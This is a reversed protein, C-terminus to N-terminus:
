LKTTNTYTPKISLWGEKLILNPIQANSINFDSIIMKNRNVLDIIALEDTNPQEKNILKQWGDEEIFYIGGASYAKSANIAKHNILFDKETDTLNRIIFEQSPLIKNLDSLNLSACNKEWEELNIICLNNKSHSNEPQRIKENFIELTFLNSNQLLKLDSDSINELAIKSEIINKVSNFLDCEENTINKVLDDWKNIDVLYVEEEFYFDSNDILKAGSLKKLDEGMLGKLAMDQTIRNKTPRNEVSLAKGKNKKELSVWSWRYRKDRLLSIQLDNKPTLVPATLLTLEIKRLANKIANYPIQINQEPLIGTKVFLKAKPHMFAIISRTEGNICSHLHKDKTKPLLAKNLDEIRVINLEKLLDWIMSGKEIFHKMIISKSIFGKNELIDDFIAKIKTLDVDGNQHIRLEKFRDILFKVEPKFIKETKILELVKSLKLDKLASLIELTFVTNSISKIIDLIKSVNKLFYSSQERSSLNNIEQIFKILKVSNTFETSIQQVTESNIYLHGLNQAEHKNEINWYGILGDNYQNIDGFRVPFNIKSLGNDNTSESFANNVDHIVNGKTLLQYDIKTIAIPVSSITEMLSPNQYDEPTIHELNNQIEHVVQSLFKDKDNEARVLFWDIIAVLNENGIDKYAKGNKSALVADFPSPEWIGDSTIAGLHNGNTSYFELRQNLYSVLIWGIVPSDGKDSVKYDFNLKLTSEQLIRPPLIVWNDKDAFTQNKTSIIKKPQILKERGYSDVIRLRNITFAGNRLPNFTALKNTTLLNINGKNRSLLDHLDKAIAQHNEFGNPILPMISLEASRQIMLHNFDSLTFSFLNTQNLKTEYDTLLKDLEPNQTKLNFSNENFLHIKNIIYQKIKGDIFSHGFYNDSSPNYTIGDLNYDKILDANQEDLIYTDEIFNEKFQKSSQNLYYGNKKPLFNAHWEVKYSNWSSANIISCYNINKIISQISLDIDSINLDFEDENFKLIDSKSDFLTNMFISAKDDKPASIIVSPALPEYFDLTSKKAISIKDLIESTSIEIQNEASRDKNYENITDIFKKEDKLIISKAEYLLQTSKTEIELKLNTLQYDTANLTAVNNKIWDFENALKQSDTKDVFLANQYNSWQNYLNELESYFVHKQNDLESQKKNLEELSKKNLIELIKSELIGPIDSLEFSWEVFGETRNFQKEHLSHRLRPIWDLKQDNLADFNLLSEIQEELRLRDNYYDSSKVNEESFKSDKAKEGEIFMKRTIDETILATLAEPLTNAIAINFDDNSNSSEANTLKFIGALIPSSSKGEVWGVITYNDSENGDEDHFGFVSRCNPYHVDFSMSGWGLATLNNLYDGFIRRLQCLRDLDITSLEGFKKNELDKLEELFKSNTKAKEKDNWEDLTYKRGVYHFNFDKGAEGEVFTCTAHKDFIPDNVNWIYDSEVIWEKSSRENKIYWRNPAAPLNGDKDFKKFHTPLVFHLHVGEELYIANDYSFPRPIISNTELPTNPNEFVDKEKNMWPINEFRIDQGIVQQPSKLYLANIQLPLLKPM